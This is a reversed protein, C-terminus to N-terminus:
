SSDPGLTQSQYPRLAFPHRELSRELEAWARIDYSPDLAAWKQFLRSMADLRTYQGETLHDATTQDDSNDM